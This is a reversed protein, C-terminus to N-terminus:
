AHAQRRDNTRREVDEPAVTVQQRRDHVRREVGQYTIILSSAHQWFAVGLWLYWIPFTLFGYLLAPIQIIPEAPSLVVLRGVYLVAALVASLLGVLGLGRAFLDSRLILWSSTVLAISTFGFTLLGRPDIQSPLVGLAVAPSIAPVNINNALDYGGHICSGLTGTLGLM